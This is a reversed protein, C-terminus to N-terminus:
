LFFFCCGFFFPTAPEPKIPEAFLLFFFLERSKNVRLLIRFVLGNEADNATEKKLERLSHVGKKALLSQRLYARVLKFLM